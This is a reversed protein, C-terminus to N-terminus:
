SGCPLRGVPPIRWVLDAKTDGDMDGIAAIEWDLSVGILFASFALNEGNMLWVAVQGSKANRWVLDAKGDGSVDGMGAIEWEPSVGGLFNVSRISLSNMRWVAVMHTRSHKWVVDAQGDGGVDGIAEMKWEAPVGGLFEWASITTGNMLWGAVVGPLTNRWLLDAKGDDNFDQTTPKYPFNIIPGMTGLNYVRKNFQLSSDAPGAVWQSQAILHSISGTGHCNWGLDVPLICLFGGFVQGAFSGVGGTITGSMWNFTLSEGPELTGHTELNM